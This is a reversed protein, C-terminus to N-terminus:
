SAIRYGCGADKQSSRGLAAEEGVRSNEVGASNWDIVKRVPREFKRARAM